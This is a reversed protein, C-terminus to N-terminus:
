FARAGEGPNGSGGAVLGAGVGEGEVFGGDAKHLLALVFLGVGCEALHEGGAWRVEGLADAHVDIGAELLDGLAFGGEERVLFAVVVRDGQEVFAVVLVRAGFELLDDEFVVTGVVGEVAEGDEGAHGAVGVDAQFVKGFGDAEVAFVADLCAGVGVELVHGVVGAEGLEEVGFESWRVWRWAAVKM